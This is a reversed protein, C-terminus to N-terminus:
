RIKVSSSILSVFLNRAQRHDCGGTPETEFPRLWPLSMNEEAEWVQHCSRGLTFCFCRESTESCM